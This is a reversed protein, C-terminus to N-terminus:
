HQHGLRLQTVDELVLGTIDAIREDNLGEVSFMGRAAQEAAQKAAERRVEEFRQEAELRGQELGQRIGHREIVNIYPM